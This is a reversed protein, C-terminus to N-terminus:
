DDEEFDTDVTLEEPLLGISLRIQDIHDAHEEASELVDIDDNEVLMWFLEEVNSKRMRDVDSGGVLDISAVDREYADKYGLSGIFEGNRKTKKVRESATEPMRYGNEARREQIAKRANCKEQTEDAMTQVSVVLRDYGCRNCEGEVIESYSGQVGECPDASMSSSLLVPLEEGTDMRSVEYSAETYTKGDIEYTHTPNHEAGRYRVGPRDCHHGDVNTTEQGLHDPGVTGSVDLNIKSPADRENAGIQRLYPEDNSM